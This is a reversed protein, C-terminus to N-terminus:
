CSKQLPTVQIVPGTRDASDAKKAPEADPITVPMMGPRWTFRAEATRTEETSESADSKEGISRATNMTAIAVTWVKRSTMGDM